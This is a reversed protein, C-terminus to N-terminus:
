FCRWCFGFQIGGSLGRIKVGSPVDSLLNYTAGIYFQDERYKTDIDDNSTISQAFNEHCLLTLFFFVCIQFRIFM